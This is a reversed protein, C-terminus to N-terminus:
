GPLDALLKRADPRRSEALGASDGTDCWGCNCDEVYVEANGGPALTGRPVYRQDEEFPGHRYGWATTTLRLREGGAFRLFAKGELKGGEALGASGGSDCVGCCWNEVYVESKRAPCWTNWTSRLPPGGVPKYRDVFM